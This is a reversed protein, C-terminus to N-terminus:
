RQLVGTNVGYQNPGDPGRFFLLYLGFILHILPILSLLYMWASHNLDHCRKGVICINCWLFILLAWLGILMFAIDDADTLLFLLGYFLANTLLNLIFYDLRGIRGKMKFLKHSLPMEYFEPEPTENHSGRSIDTTAAEHKMQAEVDLIESM